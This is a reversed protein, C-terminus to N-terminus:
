WSPKQAPKQKRVLRASDSDYGCGGLLYESYTYENKYKHALARMFELCDPIETGPITIYDYVDYTISVSNRESDWYIEKPRNEGLSFVKAELEMFVKSSSLRNALERRTTQEEKEKRAREAERQIIREEEEAKENASSICGIIIFFVLVAFLILLFM